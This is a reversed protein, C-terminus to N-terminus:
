NKDTNQGSDTDDIKVVPMNIKFFIGALRGGIILTSACLMAIVANTIEFYLLLVYVTVGVLCPIIYIYKRFIIPIQHALIDRMIGGGCGSICGIVCLMFINSGYGQAIANNVGVLCFPALGIADMVNLIINFEVSKVGNKFPKFTSILVMLIISSASAIAVYVLYLEDVFLKPPLSGILCDRLVGGGFSTINALIVSGIIDMKNKLAVMTGSLAFAIVGIIEFALTNM